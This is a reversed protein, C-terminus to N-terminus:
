ISDRREDAFSSVSGDRHDSHDSLIEANYPDFDGASVVPSRRVSYHPHVDPVWTERHRSSSQSSYHQITGISAPSRHPGSVYSPTPHPIYGSSSRSMSTRSAPSSFAFGTGPHSAARFSNNNPSFYSYSAVPTPSDIVRPRKRAVRESAPTVSPYRMPIQAPHEFPATSQQYPHLYSSSRTTPPMVQPFAASRSFAPHMSAGPMHDIYAVDESSFNSVTPDAARDIRTPVSLSSETPTKKRPKAMPGNKESVADRLVQSAKERAIEDGVDIWTSTDMDKKLFRAPPDLQRMLRVLERSIDSKVKKCAIRYDECRERAFERLTENGSHQNNKGGRGMLVDHEHPSTIGEMGKPSSMTEVNTDKSNKLSVDVEMDSENLPSSRYLSHQQILMFPDLPIAALYLSHVFKRQIQQAGPM